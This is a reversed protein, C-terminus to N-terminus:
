YTEVSKSKLLRRDQTVLLAEYVRATAALFRDAPDAHPLNIQRSLIAIENNLPAETLPFREIANEVWIVPDPELELRGKGALVITEWM